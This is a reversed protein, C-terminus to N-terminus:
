APPETPTEPLDPIADDVVQAQAKVAAVADVLEQSPTAGERIIEELEVIKEKLTDVNTQVSQIEKLTKEQQAKVARLDAALDAQTAMINNLKRDMGQLITTTEMHRLQDRLEELARSLQCLARELAEDHKM